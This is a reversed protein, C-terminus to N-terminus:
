SYVIYSVAFFSLITLRTIYSFMFSASEPLDECVANGLQNLIPMSPDLERFGEWRKWLTQSWGLYNSFSELLERIEL